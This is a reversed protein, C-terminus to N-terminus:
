VSEVLIVISQYNSMKFFWGFSKFAPHNTECARACILNDFNPYGFSRNQEDVEQNRHETEQLFDSKKTVVDTIDASKVQLRGRQGDRHQSKFLETKERESAASCPHCKRCRLFILLRSAFTDSFLFSSVWAHFNIQRYQATKYFWLKLRKGCQTESISLFNRLLRFTETKTSWWWTMMDNNHVLLYKRM